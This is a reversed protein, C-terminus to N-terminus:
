TDLSFQAKLVFLIVRAPIKLECLGCDVFLHLVCFDM